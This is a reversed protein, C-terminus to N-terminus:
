CHTCCFRSHTQNGELWECWRTVFRALRAIVFSIDFGTCRSLFLLSGILERVGPDCQQGPLLKPDPPTVSQGATTCVRIQGFGLKVADELMKATDDGQSLRLGRCSSTSDWAERVVGPFKELQVPGRAAFQTRVVKWVLTRLPKAADVDCDDVYTTMIACRSSKGSVSKAHALADTVSEATKWVVRRALTRGLIDGGGEGARKTWSAGRVCRIRQSESRAPDCWGATGSSRPGHPMPEHDVLWRVRIFDRGSTAFGYVAGRCECLPRRLKDFLAREEPHMVHKLRDPIIIYHKINGGLAVQPYAAISDISETM